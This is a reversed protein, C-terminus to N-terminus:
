KLFKKAMLFDEKNDIDISEPFKVKIFAGKGYLKYNKNPIKFIFIVGGDLSYYKKNKSNNVISINLNQVLNRNQIKFLMKPNQTHKLNVISALYNPKYKKFKKIANIVTTIKRLPSTPQLIVVADFNKGKNKFQLLTHKIVSEM